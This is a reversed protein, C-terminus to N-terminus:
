IDVIEELKFPKGSNLQPIQTYGNDKLYHRMDQILDFLTLKEKQQVVNLFANSMAGQFEREEWIWADAATQSDKCGSLMIIDARTDRYKKNVIHKKKENFRYKLDIGTGSHCCDLLITAKVGSRLPDIFIRKLYDDTLLGRRTYDLPVLAEDRGDLEDRNRDRLHSGHGSYHVFLEDGSRAFWRLVCLQRIINYKYPKMRSRESQDDTMVKINQPKYGKTLLWAKVNNVDNICGGLEARTGYYNIGILLAKKTM